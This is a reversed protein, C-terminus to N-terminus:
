EQATKEVLDALRAAADPRAFRRMAARMATRKDEDNRFREIYGALRDGSLETQACMDAAGADVLEQANATQHDRRAEPLPVLLAPVGYLCLEVCSGAGARSVALDAAGYAKSMEALFGYTVARVGAREYTARVVDEDRVGALHVVQIPSGRAHLSCLAQCATRNLRQAGQSGGMVVVTFVGPDLTRADFRAGSDRRVPLGTVVSPVGRLAGAANDFTLAVVDAFRALLSVARGPVANAEHLVVSVGLCRAAMVPGVAGFGGMALVVAPRDVRMLRRCQLTAVVFRWAARATGLSLRFPLGEARVRVVPGDWAAASANEVDRGALWLRVDHGRAKLVEGTAVGPFVHGGTGGCAIAIRM